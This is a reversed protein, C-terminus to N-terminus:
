GLVLNRWPSRPYPGQPSVCFLHPMSLQPCFVIVGASCECAPLTQLQFTSCLKDMTACCDHGLSPTPSKMGHAPPAQYIKMWRLNTVSVSPHVWAWFEPLSCIQSPRLHHNWAQEGNHDDAEIPCSDETCFLIHPVRHNPSLLAWLDEHCSVPDEEQGDDM